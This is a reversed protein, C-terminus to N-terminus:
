QTRWGQVGDTAIRVTAEGQVLYI